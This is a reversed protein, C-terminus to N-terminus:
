IKIIEREGTALEPVVKSCYWDTFNPYDYNLNVLSKYVNNIHFNFQEPHNKLDSLLLLSNDDKTM